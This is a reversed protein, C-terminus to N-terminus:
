SLSMIKTNIINIHRPAPLRWELMSRNATGVHPAHSGYLAVGCMIKTTEDKTRDDNNNFYDCGGEMM